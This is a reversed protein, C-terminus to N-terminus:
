PGHSLRPANGPLCRRRRDPEQPLLAQLERRAPILDGIGARRSGYRVVVGVSQGDEADDETRRDIGECAPNLAGAGALPQTIVQGAASVVDVIFFRAEAVKGGQAVEATAESALVLVSHDRGGAVIVLRLQERDIRKVVGEVGFAPAQAVLMMLLGIACVSLRRLMM